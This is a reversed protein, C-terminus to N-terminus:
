RIQNGRLLVHVKDGDEICDCITHGPLLLEGDANSLETPVLSGPEIHHHRAYRFKAQQALWLIHQQGSGVEIKFEVDHVLALVKM